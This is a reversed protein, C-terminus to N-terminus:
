VIRRLCKMRTLWNGKPSRSELDHSLAYPFWEGTASPVISEIKIPTGCLFAPDFVAAVDLGARDYVPYGILGSGENLIVAPQVVKTNPRQSDCILLTEGQVYFDTNTSACAQRMQDYLTGGLYPNTLVGTTGGDTFNLGMAAALTKVITAIPVAGKYTTPPAPNIQAFYGTRGLISFYVDPAASFQPQAEIITGNFIQTWGSGVAAELKVLHNLVVPPNAWAVTLANMDPGTMGYIKLSMQTAQRAVSQVKASIKMDTLTLTNSNTNPFLTNGGALILTVRLQRNVFSTNM